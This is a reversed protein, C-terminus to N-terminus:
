QPNLGKYLNVKQVSITSRVYPDIRYFLPVFLNDTEM